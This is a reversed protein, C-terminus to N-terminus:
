PLVEKERKKPEAERRRKYGNRLRFPLGDIIDHLYQVGSQCEALVLSFLSGTPAM